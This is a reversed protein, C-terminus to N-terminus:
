PQAQPRSEPDSNDINVNSKLFKRVRDVAGRTEGPLSKQQDVADIPGQYIVKKTRNDTITVTTQDGGLNVTIQQRGDLWTLSHERQETYNRSLDPAPVDEGGGSAGPRGNPSPAGRAPPPLPPLSNPRFMGGGNFFQPQMEDLPPLEHEVLTVSQTHQQGERFYTLHIEENSKFTRVLVALQESNILLQDNLKTLLDYQKLGAQDAPSKPQVFDVVLATGDPLKLQHRLAAPPQSTTLGLWAGKQPKTNIRMPTYRMAGGGGGNPREQQARRLAEQSQEMARAREEQARLQADFSDQPRPGINPPSQQAQVSPAAALLAVALLTLKM